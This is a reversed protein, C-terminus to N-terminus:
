AKYYNQVVMQYKGNASSAIDDVLEVEIELEQSLMKRLEWEMFEQQEQSFGQKAVLKVLVKEPENQIIQVKSVNELYEFAFAIAATSVSKGKSVIIAGVKGSLEELIPTNRGCPCSEHSIRGLDGIRYRILPMADNFLSTVILEGAGESAISGDEKLVEAVGYEVSIHKKGYECEGAFIVSEASGYQDYVKCDFAKEMITRQKSTFSESSTSIGRPIFELKINNEFIFEAIRFVSLPYGEIIKPRFKNLREIYYPLNQDTMHFSSFLLQNGALNIRWFPPKNNEPNQIKRGLFTAKRDHVGVGFGRYFRNWFAYSKRRIDKTLSVGLPTGTSGGTYITMLANNSYRNSVFDLPSRAIENRSLVPFATLVPDTIGLKKYFPVSQIANKLVQKLLMKQLKTLEERSKYENLFLEESFSHYVGSYRRNQEVFGAITVLFNQMFVPSALYIKEKLHSKM